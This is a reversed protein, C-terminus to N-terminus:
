TDEYLKGVKVDQLVEFPFALLEYVKNLSTNVNEFTAMDNDNKTALYFDTKSKLGYHDSYVDIAEIFYPSHSTLVINAGVEKVFLVLLEALLIQWKPHLHVEPEDIIFISDRNIYGNDFLLKIQSFIKLGTALNEINLKKGNIIYSYKGSPAQELKGTIIKSFYKDIIERSEKSFFEDVINEKKAKNAVKNALDEYHRNPYWRLFSFQSPTYNFFTSSDLFTADRFPIREIIPNGKIENNIIILEIIQKEGEFVRIEGENNNFVNNIQGYFERNLTLNLAYNIFEQNDAKLNIKKLVINIYNKLEERKKNGLNKHNDLFHMLENLGSLLNEFANETTFYYKLKTLEKPAGINLQMILRNITSIDHQISTLKYEEINNLCDNLGFYISYLVKGITSKGTNNEGSIVTLGNFEINANEIMGINKLNLRM